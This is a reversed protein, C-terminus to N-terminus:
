EATYRAFSLRFIKLATLYGDVHWRRVQEHISRQSEKSLKMGKVNALMAPIQKVRRDIQDRARIYQKHGKLREEEHGLQRGAEFAQRLLKNQKILLMLHDFDKEM